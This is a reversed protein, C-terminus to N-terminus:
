GGDGGGSIGGLGAGVPTTTTRWSSPPRATGSRRCWPTARCLWGLTTRARRGGRWRRRPQVWCSPPPSSRRRPHLPPTSPDPPPNGGLSAALSAGCCVLLRRPLPATHLLLRPAPLAAAPCPLSTHLRPLAARPSGSCLLLQCGAVLCSRQPAGTPLRARARVQRGDVRRLAYAQGDVSSIAKAVQTTVGLAQSSAEAAAALEELPYLTHYSGLVQPVGAEGEPDVQAAVLFSRQQLDARLQESVYLGAKYMRGAGATHASAPRGASGPRRGRGGRGGRAGVGGRGGGGWDRTGSSSSPGSTTGHGPASAAVAPPPGFGPPPPGLGQASAPRPSTRASSSGSRSGRPAGSPLQLPPQPPSPAPQQQQPQQPQSYPNLSRFMEAAQTAVDRADGPTVASMGLLDDGEPLDPTGSRVGPQAQARGSGGRGARQPSPKPPKPAAAAAAASSAPPRAPQSSSGAPVFPKADVGPPRGNSSSGGTCPVLEV